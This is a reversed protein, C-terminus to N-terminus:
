ELMMRRLELPLDHQLFTLIQAGLEGSRGALGPVDEHPHAPVADYNTKLLEGLPRTLKSRLTVPVDIKQWKDAHKFDKAQQDYAYTELILAHPYVRVM